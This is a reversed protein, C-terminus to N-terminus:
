LMNLMSAASVFCILLYGADIEVRTGSSQGPTTTSPTAAGSSTVSGKSESQKATSTPQGANVVSTTPTFTQSVAWSSQNYIITAKGSSDGCTLGEQCCVYGGNAEACYKNMPCGGKLDPCCTYGSPICGDGCSTQSDSKCGLASKLLVPSSSATALTAYAAFTIPYVAKM